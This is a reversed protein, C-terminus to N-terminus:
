LNKRRDTVTVKVNYNEAKIKKTMLNLGGMVRTVMVLMM